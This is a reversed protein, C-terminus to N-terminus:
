PPLERKERILRLIGPIMLPLLVMEIRLDDMPNWEEGVIAADLGTAFMVLIYLVSFICLMLSGFEYFAYHERHTLGRFFVASITLMVLGGFVDSPFLQLVAEGKLGGALEILGAALTVIFLIASYWRM